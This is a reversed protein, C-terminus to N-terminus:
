LGKKKKMFIFVAIAIVILVIVIILPIYNTTDKVTVLIDDVNNDYKMEATTNDKDAYVEITREGESGAKWTFNVSTEEGPGLFLIETSEVEKDDILLTVAFNEAAVAGQNEILAGVDIKEGKEPNSDSVEVSIVVLDPATIVITKKASATNNSKDTVNLTVEYTGPKNYTINTYNGSIISNSNAYDDGFDWDLILDELEDVNDYCATASLNLKANVEASLPGSIEVVPPMSDLIEITFSTKRSNGM